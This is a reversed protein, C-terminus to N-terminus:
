SIHFISITVLPIMWTRWKFTSLKLQILNEVNWCRLQEVDQFNFQQFTSRRYSWWLFWETEEKKVKLMEDECSRWCTLKRVNFLEFTSINFVSVNAFQFCTLIKRTLTWRRLKDFMEIHGVKLMEAKWYKCSELMQVKWSNLM